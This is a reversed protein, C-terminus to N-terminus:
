LGRLADDFCGASAFEQVLGLAGVSPGQAVLDNQIQDCGRNEVECGVVAGLLMGCITVTSAKSIVTKIM